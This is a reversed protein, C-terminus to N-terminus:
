KPTADLVRSLEELEALAREGRKGLAKALVLARKVTVRARPKRDLKVLLRAMARLNNLESSLHFDHYILRAAQHAALAEELRGLKELAQGRGTHGMAMGWWDGLPRALDLCRTAETLAKEAGDQSRIAKRFAGFAKQGGRFRKQQEPTWGVFSAAYDSFICRGLAEDAAHAGRLARAFMAKVSEQDPKDGELIKLGGELYSDIVGLARGPHKKWLAVMGAHDKKGDLSEFAAKVDNQASLSSLLLTLLSLPLLLRIM